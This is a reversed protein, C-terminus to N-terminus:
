NSGRIKLAEAIASIILGKTAELLRDSSDGIETPLELLNKLNLKTVILNYSYPLLSYWAKPKFSVNTDSRQINAVQEQKNKILENLTEKAHNPKGALCSVYALLIKKGNYMFASDRLSQQVDLGREVSVLLPQWVSNISNNAIEEDDLYIGLAHLQLTQRVKDLITDVAEGYTERKSITARAAIGDVGDLLIGATTLLSFRLPSPFTKELELTAEVSYRLSALSIQDPDVGAVFRGVLADLTTQLYVTKLVELSEM